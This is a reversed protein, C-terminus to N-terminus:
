KVKTMIEIKEKKKGESLSTEGFRVVLGRRLFLVFCFLCHWIYCGIFLVMLGRIEKMIEESSDQHRLNM